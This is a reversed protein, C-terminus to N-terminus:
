RCNKNEKNRSIITYLKGYKLAPVSKSSLDKRKGVNMEMTWDYSAEKCPTKPLYKISLYKLVMKKNKDNLLTLDM